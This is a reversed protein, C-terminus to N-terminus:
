LKKYSELIDGTFEVGEIAAKIFSCDPNDDFHKKFHNVLDKRLVVHQYSEKYGAEKQLRKVLKTNENMVNIDRSIDDRMSFKTIFKLFEDTIDSNAKKDYLITSLLESITMLVKTAAITHRKDALEICFKYLMDITPKIEEVSVFKKKREVLSMTSM